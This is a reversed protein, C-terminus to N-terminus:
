SAAATAMSVIHRAIVLSATAAPSPVNLVHTITSTSRFRFDDVLNGRRDLAQARVGSGGPRLDSEQLEPLLQQANRVFASKNLSRYYEGLGSRWYRWAMRWFGPFTLTTAADGPDIEGARYGERHFAPVANPGVEVGERVRPTFHVGLFPFRPDPVPYILGCVLFRREPILEYYEGRFPAIILDIILDEASDTQPTLKAIRDSQLGACNVVRRARVAGRTTEVITDGGRLAFAIVKAGTLIRGGAQGVLEALKATVAGYDTVAVGPLHLAEIGACHPEIERLREPGILSLEPVGNAVGRRHLEYLAPVDQASRAVVVKGCVKLPLSHERCFAAMLAAGEVCMRAKLSGPKYYLGSHIVGSNHSSQHAGVRAEKELVVVSAGAFRRLYERASALGVIGGGIIVLDATADPM